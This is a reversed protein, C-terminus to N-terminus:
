QVGDKKMAAIHRTLYNAVHYYKKKSLSAKLPSRYRGGEITPDAKASLLFKVNALHGHRAASQLATEYKGGRANPDAGGDVLMKMVTPGHASEYRAAAHLAYGTKGALQPAIPCLAVLSIFLETLRPPPGQAM